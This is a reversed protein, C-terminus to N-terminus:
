DGPADPGVAPPPLQDPPQRSSAISRQVIWFIGAALGLAVLVLIWKRAGAMQDVSEGLVSGRRGKKQYQLIRQKIEITAGAAAGTGEAPKSPGAEGRLVSALDPRAGPEAVKPKPKDAEELEFRFTDAGIQIVDGDTLPQRVVKQGNVLTGNTSGFDAVAFRNPGERWVKCHERSAKRNTPMSIDNHKERGLTLGPDIPFFQGALSGSDAVLRAM